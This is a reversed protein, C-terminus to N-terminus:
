VVAAHKTRGIEEAMQRVQDPTWKTLDVGGKHMSLLGTIIRQAVLAQDKKLWSVPKPNDEYGTIEFTLTAFLPNTSMTVANLNSLLIPFVWSSWFFIGYVIDVKNEYIVIQNPFLDFPWVAKIRWLVVTQKAVRNLKQEQTEHRLSMIMRGSPDERARIEAKVVEDAPPPPYRAKTEGNKEYVVTSGNM